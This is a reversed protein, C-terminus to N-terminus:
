GNISSNKPDNYDSELEKTSKKKVPVYILSQDFQKIKTIIM